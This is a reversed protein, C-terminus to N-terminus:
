KTLPRNWWDEAEAQLYPIVAKAARNYRRWPLGRDFHFWHDAESPERGLRIREASQLHFVTIENSPNPRGSRELEQASCRGVEVVFSEGHKNFQFSVLHRYQGCDRCLHLFSSKFGSLGKSHPPWPRFRVANCLRCTGSPQCQAQDVATPLQKVSLLKALITRQCRSRTTRLIM